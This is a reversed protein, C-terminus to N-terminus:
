RGMKRGNTVPIGLDERLRTIEEAVSEALVYRQLILGIVLGALFALVYYM